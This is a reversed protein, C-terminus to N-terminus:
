SALLERVRRELEDRVRRFAEPGRGAPDEIKWELRARAPVREAAEGCGLSVVADWLRVPLDELGKSRQGALPIGKEAMAGVAGPDVCGTPKSGASAAEVGGGSLKRTWAEAM